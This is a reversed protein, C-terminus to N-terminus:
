WPIISWRWPYGCAPGGVAVPAPIPLPLRAALEGLWRQENALLDVAEGRRPLRVALDDGLRFMFNDWGEGSFAIPLSAYQPHQDALLARVLGASVSVEAAPTGAM